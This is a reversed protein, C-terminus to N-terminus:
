FILRPVEINVNKIRSLFTKRHIKSPGYKKIAKRHYLTGYGKHKELGYKPYKKALKKMHADRTVKACISALSIVIEKDDGGIITKQYIFEEPARIGGDLLVLTQRPNVKLERLCKRICDKISWSIGKGDINKATQNLVIYRVLDNKKAQQIRSFIEERKVVSMKKSDRAGKFLKKLRYSIDHFNFEEIKINKYKEIKICFAVVAVPGALPGRCAEDIGVIYKIKKIKLRLSRM